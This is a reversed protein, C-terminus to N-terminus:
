ITDGGFLKLIFEHRIEDLSQCNISTKRYRSLVSYKIKTLSDVSCYLILYDVPFLFFLKIRRNQFFFLDKILM